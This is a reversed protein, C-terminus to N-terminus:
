IRFNCNCIRKTSEFMISLNMSHLMVVKTAIPNKWSNRNLLYNFQNSYHIQPSYIVQMLQMSVEAYHQSMGVGKLASILDQIDIRGNGSRDLRKFILALREEIELDTEPLGSDSQSGENRNKSWLKPDNSMTETKQSM